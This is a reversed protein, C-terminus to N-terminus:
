KKCPRNYEGCDTDDSQPKTSFFASEDCNVISMGGRRPEDEGAKPKGAAPYAPLCKRIKEDGGM